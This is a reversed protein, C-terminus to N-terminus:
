SMIFDLNMFEIGINEDIKKMLGKEKLKYYM